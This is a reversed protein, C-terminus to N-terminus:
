RITLLIKKPNKCFKSGDWTYEHAITLGGLALGSSELVHLTKADKELFYIARKFPNIEINEYLKIKPIKKPKTTNRKNLVYDWHFLGIRTIDNQQNQRFQYLWLKMLETLFEPTKINLSM